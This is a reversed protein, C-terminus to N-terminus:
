YNHQHQAYAQHKRSRCDRFCFHCKGQKPGNVIHPPGSRMIASNLIQFLLQSILDLHRIRFFNQRGVGFLYDTTVRLSAIINYKGGCELMHIRGYNYGAVKRINDKLM